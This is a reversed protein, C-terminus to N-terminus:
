TPCLLLHVIDIWTEALVRMVFENFYELYGNAPISSLPLATAQHACPESNLVWFPLFAFCFLLYM